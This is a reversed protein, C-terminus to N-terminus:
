SYRIGYLSMTTSFTGGSGSDKIRIANITEAQHYVGSGFNSIYAGTYYVGTTHSTTFSYKTSDGLNYFYIYGSQTENAANGLLRNIEISTGISSGVELSGIGVINRQHAWDYNSGSEYTSGSDNSFRIQINEQDYSFDLDNFTLYHVNYSSEQISTFDVTSVTSVTKTEILELQGYQTLKGANSLEYLDDTNLVGKNSGFSQTPVDKGVYGYKNSM